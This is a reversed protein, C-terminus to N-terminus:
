NMMKSIKCYFKGLKDDLFLLFSFQKILCISLNPLSIFVIMVAQSKISRPLKYLKLLPVKLPLVTCAIEVMMIVYKNILIATAHYLTYLKM